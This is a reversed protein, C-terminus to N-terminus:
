IIRERRKRFIKILKGIFFCKCMGRSCTYDVHLTERAVSTLLVVVVYSTNALDEMMVKAHTSNELRYSITPWCCEDQARISDFAALNIVTKCFFRSM